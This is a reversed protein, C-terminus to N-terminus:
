FPLDREYVFRVGAELSWSDYESASDSSQYSQWDAAALADIWPAIRYEGWIGISFSTDKQEASADLFPESYTVGGVDLWAGATLRDSLFANCGAAAGIATHDESDENSANREYYAQAWLAAADLGAWSVGPTVRWQTDKQQEDAITRRSQYTSFVASLDLSAHLDSSFVYGCSPALSIWKYDNEPLAADQYDGAAFSFAATLPDASWLLVASGASERVFASDAEFYEYRYHSLDFDLELNDAAFWVIELRPM